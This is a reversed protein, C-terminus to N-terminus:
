TQRRVGLRLVDQGGLSVIRIGQIVTFPELAVRGLLEKGQMVPMGFTLVTGDPRARAVAGPAVVIRRARGSADVEIRGPEGIEVPTSTGVEVWLDMRDAPAITDLAVAAALAALPQHPHIANHLVAVRAGTVADREVARGRDTRREVLATDGAFLRGERDLAIIGADIEPNADLVDPAARDAPEGAKMRELVEINLPRGSRCPTNPLRHGSVLGGLPDGPTFQALPEPRDPGSSMLAAATAEAFLPPPEVGTLDGATFLTRSGGRQTTARVLKKDTTIAVLSVFGGISGRGVREVARLANFVALGARPGSVVIGITM